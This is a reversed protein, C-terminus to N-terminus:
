RVSKYDRTLCCYLTWREKLSHSNSIKNPATVNMVAHREM